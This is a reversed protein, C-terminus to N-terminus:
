GGLREQLVVAATDVACRTCYGLDATLTAHMALVMAQRDADALTAPGGDPDGYAQLFDELAGRLRQRHQEFYDDRIRRLYAPFLVAYDIADTPHEVRWAGIRSMLGERFGRPEGQVGLHAEVEGLLQESPDEYAGTVPNRIQERRIWHTVHLVYRDFLEAHQQPAVLGSAQQLEGLALDVFHERVVGIAGRADLFEGEPKIQLFAYLSADEVLDQLERFVAPPGVCPCDPTQGAQLLVMKVERPSAGVRGEYPHNRVGDKYLLPVSARLLKSEEEGFTDPPAGTAYLEAKQLPTLKNFVAALPEDLGKGTPARLRTLVAWLAAVRATHPAVHGIHVGAELADAYIEEEELYNLLYPTRVLEIRGKFAAWDPSGKFADVQVDNSSGMFAADVFLITNDLSVTSKECTSLIYKWAEIPRKLMDNYEVLGRSGDVLDGYPAFLSLHKLSAPLASLSSDM